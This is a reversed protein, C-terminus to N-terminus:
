TGEEPEDTAPLSLDARVAPTSGTIPEDAAGAARGLPVSGAALGDLAPVLDIRLDAGLPVVASFAGRWIEAITPAGPGAFMPQADDGGFIVPAVYLVYQDVLRGRHFDGAVTAGGEVLVQLVGREGLQDLLDTLPGEFELAPQVKADPAARGLVVRLPDAGDVHRVNLSPDDLRVTNAGVVIADSIARLQHADARAAGGTIWRSSGDPAATRGDISVGLKLVVWPRGTTRHKIYPALQLRVAQAEVGVVVEVGADRLRRLGAGAVKEDPDEIAVVVRRIGADILADACPPTRGVHACPELTVWATGGRAAAGAAALAGAEAHPGGPPSTAAVFVQGDPAEIVCGVWPNPATTGRVRGALEIAQLMAETDNM